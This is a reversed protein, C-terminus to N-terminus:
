YNLMKKKNEVDIAKTKISDTVSDVLDQTDKVMKAITPKNGTESEITENDAGNIFKNIKNACKNYINVANELQEQITAM